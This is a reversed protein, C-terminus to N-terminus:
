KLDELIMPLFYNAQKYWWPWDHNVDFGWYDCVAKINKERLIGELRRLSFVGQEEWAGQGTCLIIKKSNYLDIYPHDNEMNPLFVEPTSHYLVSDMYSGFFCATDYVGSLAMVGCFLDPRRLFCIVAHNAGMSTGMVIINKRKRSKTKIFPVLEQTAFRFYNEQILAREHGDGDKDSWSMKDVSDVTYLQIAGSNILESLADVLGFDEYNSCPSDQTPFGLVPVGTSKGYVLVNMDMGLNTSNIVYHKKQM